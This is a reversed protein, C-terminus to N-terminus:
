KNIERAYYCAMNVANNIATSTITAGSTVFEGLAIVGDIAVDKYWTASAPDGTIMGIFTDANTTSVYSWGKVKGDAIVVNITIVNSNAGDASFDGIGEVQLAIAGDDGGSLYIKTVKGYTANTAFEANPESEGQYIFGEHFKSFGYEVYGCSKVATVFDASIGDTSAVVESALLDSHTLGAKVVVAFINENEDAYTYAGYSVDDKTAEFYYDAGLKTTYGDDAVKVFNYGEVLANIAKLADGEPNAGLGLANMAYYSAVSICNAIAKSSMTTGAVYFGENKYNLNWDSSIEEGVYWENRHKDTFNGMLTEGEYDVNAWAKIIVKGQANEQVFVYCTVSGKYGELGKAKIAYTGDKSKAVSLVEGNGNPLTAFAKDIDGKFSSDLTFDPYYKKFVRAQEEEPTVYFLNNCLALLAGCVLCIVLLVSVTKVAGLFSKSKESM